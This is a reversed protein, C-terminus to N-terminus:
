FSVGVNASLEFRDSTNKGDRYFIKQHKDMQLKRGEFRLYSGEGTKFEIGATAGWLKLGTIKNQDDSIVGTIFGDPDNFVEARGAIAFWRCVQYKLAALGSYMTADDDPLSFSSNLQIGYDVGAQMKLDGAQANVYVNQHIRLHSVAYPIDPYDDGVYNSYGFNAGDGLPGTILMGFSKKSNNDEYLNYGNLAYLSISWNDGPLYNLRAGAEYSPEFFTVVSWSSLFNERPLLGETGFHTRFLGADLWLNKVIRIGARAEMINNLGPSAFAKPLDGAQLTVIGRFRPGDYQFNLLAINLGFQESRPSVAPFKQFNGLGVSDTYYAYYADVYGSVSFVSTSDTSQCHATALQLWLMSFLLCANRSM